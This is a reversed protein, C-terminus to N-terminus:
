RLGRQCRVGVLLLTDLLAMHLLAWLLGQARVAHLELDMAAVDIHVRFHVGLQGCGGKGVVSDGHLDIAWGVLGRHVFDVGVHELNCTISVSARKDGIISVRMVVQDRVGGFVCLDRRSLRRVGLLWRLRRLGLCGVRLFRVVSLQAGMANFKWHNASIDLNTVVHISFDCGCSIILLWGDNHVISFSEQGGNISNVRVGNFQRANVATATGKNLIISVRVIVNNWGRTVSYFRL